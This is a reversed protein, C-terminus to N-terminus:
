QYKNKFCKRRKNGNLRKWEYIRKEMIISINQHSLLSGFLSLLDIFSRLFSQNYVIMILYMLRQRMLLAMYDLIIKRYYFIDIFSSKPIDSQWRVCKEYRVYYNLAAIWNKIQRKSQDIIKQMKTTIMLYKPGRYKYFLKASQVIM